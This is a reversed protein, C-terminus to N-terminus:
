EMDAKFYVVPNNNYENLINIVFDQFDLFYKIFFDKREEPTRKSYEFINESNRSLIHHSKFDNELKSKLKNKSKEINIQNNEVHLGFYTIFIPMDFLYDDFGVSRKINDNINHHTLRHNFYDTILNGTHLNNDFETDYYFFDEILDDEDVLGDSSNWGQNALLSHFVDHLMWNSNEYTSSIGKFNKSEFENDEGKPSIILGNSNKLINEYSKDKLKGEDWLIDLAKKIFSYDDNKNFKFGIGGDYNGMKTVLLKALDQPVQSYEHDYEIVDINLEPFQEGSTNLSHINQFADKTTQSQYRESILNQNWETLLEKFESRSLKSM